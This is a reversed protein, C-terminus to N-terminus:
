LQSAVDRELAAIVALSLGSVAAVTAAAGDMIDFVNLANVVALVWIVTLALNLAPFSSVDWGSQLGVVCRGVRNRPRTPALRPAPAPRRHDRGGV